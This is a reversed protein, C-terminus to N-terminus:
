GGVQLWGGGFVLVGERCSSARPGAQLEGGKPTFGDLAGCAEGGKVRDGPHLGMDPTGFGVVSVAERLKLGRRNFVWLCGCAFCSTFVM